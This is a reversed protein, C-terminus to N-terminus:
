VRVSGTFFEEFSGSGNMFKDLDFEIPSSVKDTDEVKEDQEDKDDKDDKDDYSLLGEIGVNGRTYYHAYHL